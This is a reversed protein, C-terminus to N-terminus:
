KLESNESMMSPSARGEPAFLMVPVTMEVIVSFPAGVM